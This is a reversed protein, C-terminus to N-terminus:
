HNKYILWTIYGDLGLIKSTHWSSGRVWYYQSKIKMKEGTAFMIGNGQPGTDESCKMYTSNYLLNGEHRAEEM